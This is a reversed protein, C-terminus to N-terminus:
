AARWGADATIVAGNIFRSEDSALFLALNAIDTGQLLGPMTDTYVKTRASGTRDFKTMDVSQIINTAVGGPLIANCRVGRPGYIWATNKTLGIQAHKAATYAVGAAGGGLAAISSVNVISGGGQGLMVPLARRTLYMAGNLNIGMVREWMENTLEAVGQNLDMVGANNVLIDLRGFTKVAADVIAEAEAQVAINGKVGEIEGGAGKVEGVVEALTKENWEGAVIKAGEKAFLNAMARGMGSGAGTIIAVKGQLRM